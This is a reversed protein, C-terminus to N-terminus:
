VVGGMLADLTRKGTNLSQQLEKDLNQNQSKIQDDFAGLLKMATGNSQYGIGFKKKLREILLTRGKEDFTVLEQLDTLGNAQLQEDLGSDRLLNKDNQSQNGKLVSLLSRQGGESVEPPPGIQLAEGNPFQFGIGDDPALPNVREPGPFVRDALAM